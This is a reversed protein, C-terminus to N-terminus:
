REHHSMSRLKTYFDVIREAAEDEIDIHVGEKAYRAVLFYM